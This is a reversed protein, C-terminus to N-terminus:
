QVAQGDQQMSRDTQLAEITLATRWKSAASKGIHATRALEAGSMGLRFVARAKQEASLRPGRKGKGHAATRGRRSGSRAPAAPLQVVKPAGDLAPTIVRGQKRPTGPGTPPKQPADPTDPLTPVASPLAVQARELRDQAITLLARLRTEDDPAILAAAMYLSVKEALPASADGAIRALDRLVGEGGIREGLALMDRAMVPLPRALSLYVSLLPAALARAGILAWAVGSPHEYLWSMYGYTAAELIAVGFLVFRHLRGDRQDAHRAALMRLISAAYLMATDMCAVLLGSVSAAIMAPFTAHGSVIAQISDGALAVLSGASFLILMLFACVHALRALTAGERAIASLQREIPDSEGFLRVWVRAFVGRHKM